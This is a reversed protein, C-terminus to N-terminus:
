EHHMMLLLCRMIPISSFVHMTGCGDGIEGVVWCQAYDIYACVLAHNLQLSVRAILFNFCTIITATNHEIKNM